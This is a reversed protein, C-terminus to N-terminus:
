NGQSVTTSNGKHKATYMRHLLVALLLSYILISLVEWALGLGSSLSGVIPLWIQGISCSAIIPAPNFSVIMQYTFIVTPLVWMILDAVQLHKIEFTKYRFPMSVGLLRDFGVVAAQALCVNKAITLPIIVWLCETPSCSEPLTLALLILRKLGCIFSSLCYITDAIAVHM